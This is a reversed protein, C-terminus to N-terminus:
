TTSSSTSFPQGHFQKGAQVLVEGCEIRSCQAPTTARSVAGACRAGHDIAALHEGEAAIIVEAEGRVRLQDRRQLFTRSTVADAAAGRVQDAAMRARMGRQFFAESGE